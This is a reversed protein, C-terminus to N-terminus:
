WVRTIIFAMRCSDTQFEVKHHFEVCVATRLAPIMVRLLVTTGAKFTHYSSSINTRWQELMELLGGWEYRLTTSHSASIQSFLRFLFVHSYRECVLPPGILHWCAKKSSESRGSPIHSCFHYRGVRVSWWLESLFESLPHASKVIAVSHDIQIWSQRDRRMLNGSCLTGKSAGLKRSLGTVHSSLSVCLLM